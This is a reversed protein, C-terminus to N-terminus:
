CQFSDTNLVNNISENDHYLRSGLGSRISVLVLAPFSRTLSRSWQSGWAAQYVIFDPAHLGRGSRLSVQDVNM